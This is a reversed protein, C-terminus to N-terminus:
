LGDQPKFEVKGDPFDVKNVGQNQNVQPSIKRQQNTLQNQPKLNHNKANKNGQNANIGPQNM